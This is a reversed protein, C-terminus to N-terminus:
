PLPAAELRARADERGLNWSPWGQTSAERLLEDRRQALARGVTARDAAGLRPLADVLVPIAGDGLGSLYQADFGARGGPPVQSPDLARAVNEQAVFSQPGVVNAGLAVALGLAAAAHPLWRSRGTLVTVAAAGLCLGLWAIAAIVYFRLETWGYAQQYLELRVAASALVVGTLGLLLLGAARYTRSRERVVTEMVCILAGVLAAATVLEFFGRRAYDSYTLGSAALTDRGGFLYAGQLGVFLGFLVDIACLVVTAELGGFRAPPVFPEDRHMRNAPAVVVVLMGAGVWAATVALGVRLPLSGLDLQWSFADALARAFVADASAFLLTFAGVIPLAILLGTAIARSRRGPLVRVDRAVSELGPGLGQAGVSAVVGGRVLLAMLGGVSRRTVSIGALAAVAGGTLVVMASADFAQLAADARIALLSAALLAAM